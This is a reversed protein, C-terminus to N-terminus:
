IPAQVGPKVVVPTSPVDPIVGRAGLDASDRVGPDWDIRRDPPIGNWGDPVGAWASTSVIGAMLCIGIIASVTRTGVTRHFRKRM